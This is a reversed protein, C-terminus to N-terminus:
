SARGTQTRRDPVRRSRSRPTTRPDGEKGVRREESRDAPQVVTLQCGLADHLPVLIQIVAAAAPRARLPDREALLRHRVQRVARPQLEAAVPQFVVGRARERDTDVIIHLALSNLREISRAHAPEVAPQALPDYRISLSASRARGWPRAVVLAGTRRRARLSSASTRYPIQVAPHWQWGRRAVRARGRRPAAIRGPDSRGA